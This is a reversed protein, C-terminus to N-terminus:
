WCDITVSSGAQVLRARRGSCGAQVAHDHGAAGASANIPGSVPVDANTAVRARGVVAGAERKGGCYRPTSWVQGTVGPVVVQSRASQTQDALVAVARAHRRFEGAAAVLYRRAGVFSRHRHRDEAESGPAVTSSPLLQTLM